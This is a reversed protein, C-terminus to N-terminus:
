KSFFLNAIPIMAYVQVGKKSCDKILSSTLWREEAILAGSM